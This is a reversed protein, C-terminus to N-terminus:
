FNNKWHRILRFVAAASTPQPQATQSAYQEAAKVIAPTHCRLFPNTNKEAILPSPITIEGNARMKRAQEMRAQLAINDPDLHLAFKLNALTYEHACYILTDDPLAAIKQLSLFMEDYLGTHLRGCGGAFLTDGCFLRGPSGAEYYAVHGATHGPVDIVQFQLENSMTIRDDQKVPHTMGPIMETAPGYVPISHHALIARVGDVHDHCQHTVLIAGPTQHTMHLYDLVPREDGPDVITLPRSNNAGSGNDASILWIYNDQFAPIAIVDNM